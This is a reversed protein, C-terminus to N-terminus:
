PAVIHLKNILIVGWLNVLISFSLLTWHLWMLKNKSLYKIILFILFPYFDIAFRYGFQAYGTEGHMLITLLIASIAAWSLLVGKEKLNAFFAFVFAPTTIWIALGAWSPILYPFTNRYKPLSALMVELGRPIYSFNLIGHKYWPESLVGPILSYGTDLPNGFRIFNYFLYFSVFPILGLLIHLRNKNAEFFFFPLAVILEIRSLFAIGFLIGVVLGSQKKIQALIALALFLVATTQGLYWVSGVSSEFWIISGFAVLLTVWFTKIQSKTIEYCTLTSVAVLAAGILHAFINQPFSSGFIAVFPLLLIAPGPPYVVAFKDKAIPILESLWSPSDPIYYKGHLFAAALRTFYNYPTTGSSTLLYVIFSILFIAIIKVTPKM